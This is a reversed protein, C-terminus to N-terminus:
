GWGVDARLNRKQRRGGGDRHYDDERDGRSNGPRRDDDDDADVARTGVEQAEELVKPRRGRRAIEEV